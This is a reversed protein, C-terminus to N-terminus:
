RHSDLLGLFGRATGVPPIERLPPLLDLGQKGRAVLHRIHRLLSTLAPLRQRRVVLLLIHRGVPSRLLM